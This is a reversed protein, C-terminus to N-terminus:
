VVDFVGKKQLEYYKIINVAVKRWEDFILADLAINLKRNKFKAIKKTEDMLFRVLNDIIHGQWGDEGRKEKYLQQGLLDGRNPDLWFKEQINLNHDILWGAEKKQLQLSLNLINSIAQSLSGEIAIKTNTKTNYGSLAYVLQEIDKAVATKLLKTSFISAVSKSIYTDPKKTISPPLNNLLHNRGMNSQTLKSVNAKHSGGREMFAPNKIVLYPAGIGGQARVEYCEKKDSQIEKFRRCIDSNLTSAYLPVLNAYKFGELGCLPADDANLPFYVQKNFADAKPEKKAGVVVDYLDEFIVYAEEEDKSLAKIFAEDKAILLDAVIKDNPLKLMLFSYISAKSVYYTNTGTIDFVPAQVSHTGAYVSPVQPNNKSAKYLIAGGKSYPEIGKAIHTSLDVSGAQKAFVKIRTDYDYKSANGLAKKYEASAPDAGIEDLQALALLNEEHKADERQEKEFLEQIAQRIQGSTMKKYM